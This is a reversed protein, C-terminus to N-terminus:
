KLLAISKQAGEDMTKAFILGAEKLIEMAKDENTGTLRAVIPHKINLTKKAQLIGNAVDDCRTIGGFINFFIVRVNEDKLLIKLANMVKEPSSSGGIDLFNAPEGGFHKVLDMTAMALGAGNVVCGINGSLRVYSLDQEKALLENEDESERDRMAEIEPHRFLGNDDFNIKADLAILRGSRDVVLPNIEALSSDLAVFLKYLKSVVSACEFAIKPDDYLFLGIERAKHLMLGLLSDAYVKYIAEPKQRAIEEIEVGGEKCAMVVTKKETRDVIIGLYAESGIDVAESVLVKKVPIGKIEMNLISEAYQRVENENKALKIGGAKGRGGVMVQAKIVCPIGIEKVAAMVEEVTRCMKEKPTLIGYKKFIEKAQYEHVKM